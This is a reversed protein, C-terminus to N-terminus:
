VGQYSCLLRLRVRTSSRLLLVRESHTKPQQERLKAVAGILV